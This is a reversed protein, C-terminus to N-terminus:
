TGPLHRYVGLGMLLAAIHEAATSLHTATGPPILEQAEGYNVIALIAGGIVTWRKWLPRDADPTTTLAM